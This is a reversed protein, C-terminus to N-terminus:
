AARARRAGAREIIVADQYRENQVWLTHKARDIFHAIRERGNDTCWILARGRTRAHVGQAGLRRRLM